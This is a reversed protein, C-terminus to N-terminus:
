DVNEYDNAIVIGCDRNDILCSGFSVHFYSTLMRMNMPWVAGSDRDDILCGASFIVECCYSIFLRMDTPWLVEGTM